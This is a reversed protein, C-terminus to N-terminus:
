DRGASSRSRISPMSPAFDDRIAARQEDSLAEYDFIPIGAEALAPRIQENMLRSLARMQDRIEERCDNLEETATRGDPSVRSSSKSAQQELGGMRKMFFEDHLM